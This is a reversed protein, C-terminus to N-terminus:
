EQHNQKMDFIEMFLSVGLILIAGVVGLFTMSDKLIIASLIIAIVPDIYSFISIFHTKVKTISGFYLVYSIGTHIIGVILILLSPNSISGKEKKYQLKKAM